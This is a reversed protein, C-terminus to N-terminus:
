INIVNKVKGKIKEDLFVIRKFLKLNIIKSIENNKVLDEFCSGHATFLCSVGSCVAYNIIDVDDRNGIEDAIIAKPAMSRIAMRIGVSKPVNDLIDTRIGVDNYAIGKDLAAIEGREDIICVNIGKFNIEPIGNSIRKAVDRIITTKGCGPPSVILTNHITNNQTDLIHRIVDDSANEVQHAIRINLSYIHSINTVKGDSIVVNGAIGARHGGPLTIYGEMIENQYAYISNNCMSQVIGVIQNSNIVYKLNIEINGMNLLVPKGSRIRIEEIRNINHKLIQTILDKPLCKLIFNM